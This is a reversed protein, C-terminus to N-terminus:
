NIELFPNRSSFQGYVDPSATKEGKGRTETKVKGQMQMENSKNGMEESRSQVPLQEADNDQM